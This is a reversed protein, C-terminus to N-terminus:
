GNLSVEMQNILARLALFDKTRIEIPPADDHNYDLSVIGSERNLGITWIENRITEM